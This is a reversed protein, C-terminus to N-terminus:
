YLDTSAAFARQRQVRGPSDTGTVVVMCEGGNALKPKFTIAKASLPVRGVQLLVSPPKRLLCMRLISNCRSRPSHQGQCLFFAFYLFSAKIRQHLSTQVALIFFGATDLDEQPSPVALALPGRSWSAPMRRWASCTSWSRERRSRCSRLASCQGHPQLFYEERTTNVGSPM